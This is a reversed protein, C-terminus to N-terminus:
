RAGWSFLWLVGLIGVHLRLAPLDKRPPADRWQPLPPLIRGRLWTERHLAVPARAHFECEAGVWGRSGTGAGLGVEQRQIQGGLCRSAYTKPAQSVEHLVVDGLDMWTTAHTPVDTRQLSLLVADHPSVVTQQETWGGTSVPRLWRWGNYSMSLRTRWCRQSIRSSLGTPTCGAESHKIVADRQAM